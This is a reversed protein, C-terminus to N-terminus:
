PQGEKIQETVIRTVANSLFVRIQGALSRGELKAIERLSDLLDPDLQISTTKLPTPKPM